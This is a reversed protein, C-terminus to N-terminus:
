EETELNNSTMGKERYPGQSSKDQTDGMNALENKKAKIENVLRAREIELKENDFKMGSIKVQQEVKETNIKEKILEAEAIAKAAKAKEAAVQAQELEPNKTPEATEGEGPKTPSQGSLIQEFTPMKGDQIAKEFQKPDIKQLMQMLQLIEPPFGLEQLKTVLDTLPGEQMKKIIEERGSYDLKKLLEDNPIAGKEFLAIAEEREQVKSVPMTSGSVVSLKIPLILDPGFVPVSQEKGDATQITTYIREPDIFWNQVHSVFMRGWERDMRSYNRIKGQAMMSAIEILAQLTKYALRDGGAGTQARDFDWTGMVLMFFDKYLEIAKLIEAPASPTELYGIGKAAEANTPRIIGPYNSLEADDVGSNQPNILKQRTLTFDKWVGFQSMSKNLEIQMPSGQDFDTLGWPNSPDTISPTVNFPFRTYLYTKSAKEPPLDWNICPNRRDDLVVKGGNCTVVYRINGPYRYEVEGTPEEEESVATTMRGQDDKVPRKKTQAVTSYDKCFCTVILLEDGEPGRGLRRALQDILYTVGSITSKFGGRQQNQGGQVERRERGLDQMWEDDPVIQEKMKPWKRRAERVSMPRFYFCAEAREYPVDLPWWGFQFNDIVYVLVDGDGGNGMPDYPVYGICAGYTEGNHVAQEMAHQIENEIWWEESLHLLVNVKDEQDPNIPGIRKVNFTPNNATMMNITRQRHTFLLNPSTLSLKASAERWHQNRGLRYYYLWKDHLGVNIKDSIIHELYGWITKGVDADGEPPLLETRYESPTTSKEAM